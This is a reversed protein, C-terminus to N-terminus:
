SLQIRRLTAVTDADAVSSPALLCCAVLVPPAVADTVFTLLARSKSALALQISLPSVHLQGRGCAHVCCRIM